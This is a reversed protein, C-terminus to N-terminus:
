TLSLRPRHLTTASGCPGCPSPLRIDTLAAVVVAVAVAGSLAALFRM